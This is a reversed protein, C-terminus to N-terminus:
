CRSYCRRAPSCACLRRWSSPRRTVDCRHRGSRSRHGAQQQQPTGFQGFSSPLWWQSQRRPPRHECRRGAIVRAVAHLNVKGGNRGAFAAAVSRATIRCRSPLCGDVLITPKWRRARQGFLHMAQHKAPRGRPAAEWGLHLKPAYFGVIHIKSVIIDACNSHNTQDNYHALSQEAKGQRCLGFPRRKGDPGRYDGANSQPPVPNHCLRSFKEGRVSQGPNLPGLHCEQGTQKSGRGRAHFVQERPSSAAM